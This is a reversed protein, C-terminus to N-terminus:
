FTASWEGCGCRHVGCLECGANYKICNHCCKIADSQKNTTQTQVGELSKIAADWIMQDTIDKYLRQEGTIPNVQNRYEAFWESLTQAAM